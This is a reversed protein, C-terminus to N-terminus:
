SGSFNLCSLLQEQRQASAGGAPQVSCKRVGHRRHAVRAALGQRGCVEGHELHRPQALSDRPYQPYPYSRGARGRSVRQM